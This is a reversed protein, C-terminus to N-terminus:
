ANRFLGEPKGAGVGSGDNRRRTREVLFNLLASKRQGDIMLNRHTRRSASREPGSTGSRDALQIDWNGHLFGIALVGAFSLIYTRAFRWLGLPM